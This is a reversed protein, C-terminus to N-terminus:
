LLVTPPGHRGPRRAGGDPDDKCDGPLPGPLGWLSVPFATGEINLILVGNKSVLSLRVRERPGFATLMQVIAAKDASSYGLTLYATLVDPITFRLIRPTDQRRGRTKEWIHLRCKQQTNNFQRAYRM